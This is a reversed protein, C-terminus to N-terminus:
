SAEALRPTRGQAEAPRAQEQTEVTDAYARIMRLIREREEPAMTGLIGLIEQIEPDQSEGADPPLLGAMRFVYDAQLNLAEAIAICMDPGIGRSGSMVRSLSAYRIGAKRAFDAKTWGRKSLEEELWQEFNEM